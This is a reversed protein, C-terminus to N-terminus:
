RNEAELSIFKIRCIGTNISKGDKFISLTSPQGDNSGLAYTMEVISEKDAGVSKFTHVVHFRGKNKIQTYTKYKEKLFEGFEKDIAVLGEGSDEELKFGKLLFHRFKGKFIKPNDDDSKMQCSWEVPNLGKVPVGRNITTFTGDGWEETAHAPAEMSVGIVVMILFMVVFKM